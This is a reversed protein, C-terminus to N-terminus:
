IAIWRCSRRSITPRAAAPCAARCTSFSCQFPCGRGADFTTMRGATRSIRALPLYPIPVGAINPLKAMHNYMPKLTGAAADRLVEELGDEAEGAYLAIGLDMAEQLEPTIQPIMAITGSVHFGDIAVDIGLARFRRAPDMARPYQNSQVGVMGVMGAGACRIDAAIREPRIRTNTEDYAVVSIETDAGLVRRQAFDTALGHMAALSNSPTSSRFWQIVYGDDDYHSPKILVLRFQRSRDRANM